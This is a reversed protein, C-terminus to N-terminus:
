INGSLETSRRYGHRYLGQSDVEVALLRERVTGYVVNGLGTIGIVFPVLQGVSDISNAGLINNWAITMEIMIVLYVMSFISYITSVWGQWRAASSPRLIKQVHAFRKAAGKLVGNWAGVDAGGWFFELFFFLLCSLVSVIIGFVRLKHIRVKAFILTYYTCKSDQLSDIGHWWFWSSYGVLSGFLHLIVFLRFASLNTSPETANSSGTIGAALFGGFCLPLVILVEPQFLTQRATVLVIACIIACQFCLTTSQMSSAENLLKMNSLFTAIWQSYVGIRVGVGYLDQNAPFTCNQEMRFRSLCPAECTHYLIPSRVDQYLALFLM